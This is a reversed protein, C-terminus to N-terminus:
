EIRGRSGSAARDSPSPELARVTEVVESAPPRVTYDEDSVLYRVIGDADLVLVTPDPITGDHGIARIGYADFTEGEPDLLIPFGLGVKGRFAELREPDDAAIAWVTAGLEEFSELHLQLEM